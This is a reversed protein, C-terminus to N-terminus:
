PELLESGPWFSYLYPPTGGMADVLMLQISNATTGSFSLGTMEESDAVAKRRAFPLAFQRCSPHMQPAQESVLTGV